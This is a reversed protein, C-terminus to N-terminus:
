ASGWGGGGPSRISFIDGATGRVTCKAPLAHTTGDGRLLVNEGTAGDSGGAAGRPGRTRRETLLSVDADTLLEIDRRVGDGGAHM